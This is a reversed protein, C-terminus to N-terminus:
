ADRVSADFVSQDLAQRHPATGIDFTRALAGIRQQQQKQKM